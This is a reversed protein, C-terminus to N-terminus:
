PHGTITQTAAVGELGMKRVSIERMIFKQVKGTVTMPFSDVFKIHRPIKFDAIKGKCFRRIGEESLVAGEKPKVWAMVDEGLRTDPIGVVQAEAIGPCKYLFEEIERPYINEGGRIIMEKIRGTIKYYGDEDAVAVDGTHLWGDGDITEATSKPDNYYGNMVMYGRACLEGNSGVPLTEGTQPDVIKVETHPLARGVSSVRIELPDDTSTQTIVPSCETLGYAITLESCHMERVVRRMLEIPCSSGAMIGTRLCTVDFDRFNPHDLEAIFMTPVGHVATCREEHIAQLTALPDFYEAPIVMTAGAVVCNMNGLVMGFCHYFPVPICISDNETMKMANGILLGNNVISYHSLTAGKPFGTTGSTYQINIPDHPDLTAERKRLSEPTVSEAMEVFRDWALMSSPSDQGIFIVNKLYPLSASGFHCPESNRSEPAITFLSEIYDCDRFGRILFLTQCESQTLAYQLEHARYRLNLNVLIAGVKATAFQLLVWEACNTAWVGVRDGKQIGLAMLGRAVRDVEAKLQSYTLRVHQHRVILGPRDPFREASRDLAQGVCLNLLAPTSAGKSYSSKPSPATVTAM